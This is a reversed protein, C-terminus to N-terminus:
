DVNGDTFGLVGGTKLTVIYNNWGIREDYHYPALQINDPSVLDYSLCGWVKVLHDYIAQTTAPLEVVTEMSDSLLGCHQRFKM